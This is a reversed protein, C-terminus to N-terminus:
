LHMKRLFTKCALPGNGLVALGDRTRHTAAARTHASGYMTDSWFEVNCHCAQVEQRRIRFGITRCPVCCVKRIEGGFTRMMLTGFTVHSVRITSCMNISEFSLSTNWHRLITFFVRISESFLSASWHVTSLISLLLEYCLSTARPGPRAYTLRCQGHGLM